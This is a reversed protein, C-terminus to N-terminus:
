YYAEWEIDFRYDVYRTYCGFPRYGYQYGSPVLGEKGVFFKFYSLDTYIEGDKVHGRLKMQNWSMNGSTYVLKHDRYIKFHWYEDDPGIQADEYLNLRDLHSLKPPEVLANPLTVLVLSVIIGLEIIALRKYNNM